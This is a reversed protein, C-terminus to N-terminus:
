AAAAGGCNSLVSDYVSLYSDVMRTISFERVVRERAARARLRLMEPNVVYAAIAEAMADEDKPPVLTGTVGDEVLELNGGVGTAVVPLGSAMSELITNSIGEALSPLVFLDMCRLLSPVDERQGPLWAMSEVGGFNLLAEVRQRQSGDGVMVLRLRSKAHPLLEALRVFAGALTMPDKVIEMRGVTGIVFSDPAAFDEVPIPERGGSSSHFVETDVGNTIRTVRDLPVGVQQKLYTELGRSVVVFRDVFPSLARRLIQYRLKQGYLDHIDWGHDGHIRHPVGAFRAPVLSEM